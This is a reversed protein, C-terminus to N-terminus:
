PSTPRPTSPSLRTLMVSTKNRQRRRRSRDGYADWAQAMAVFMEGDKAWARPEDSFEKLNFKKFYVYFSKWSKVGREKELAEAINGAQDANAGSAILAEELEMRRPTRADTM